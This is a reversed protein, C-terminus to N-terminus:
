LDDYFDEDRQVLHKGFWKSVYIILACGIFGFAVFFGPVGDWWRPRYFDVLVQVAITAATLVVLLVWHWMKM